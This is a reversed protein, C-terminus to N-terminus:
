GAADRAAELADIRDRLEDVQQQLADIQQETTLHATPCQDTKDAM